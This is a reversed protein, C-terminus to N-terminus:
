RLKQLFLNLLTSLLKAVAVLVVKMKNKVQATAAEVFIREVMECIEFFKTKRLEKPLLL